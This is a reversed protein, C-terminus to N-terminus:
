GCKLPRDLLILPMTVLQRAIHLQDVVGEATAAAAQLLQEPGSQTGPSLCPFQLHRGAEILDHKLIREIQGGDVEVAPTDGEVGELLVADREYLPIPSGVIM